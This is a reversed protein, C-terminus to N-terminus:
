RLKKSGSSGTGNSSSNPPPPPTQPSSLLSILPDVFPNIPTLFISPIAIQSFSCDPTLLPDTAGPAIPNVPQPGIPNSLTIGTLTYSVSQLPSLDQTGGVIRVTYTGAMLYLDLSSTQGNAAFVDGVLNNNSDYVYLRVGTNAQATSSASVELHFLETHGVKLQYADQLNAATLQDSGLSTITVPAIRFNVGLYYDGTTSGGVTNLASVSLYYTGNAIVPVQVAYSGNSDALVSVQVPNGNADFVSVQPRLGNGDQNWLIVTMTGGGAGAVQLQYFNATGASAINGYATYAFLANSGPPNAQLVAATALSNNGQFGSNPVATSTTPVSNAAVAQDSVISLKYAGMGFVDQTGSTVEVYYTSNAPLNNFRLQLTNGGIQTGTQTGLLNGNSDFVSFQPNLLSIGSSQVTITYNDPASHTQFAFYEAQNLTTIDANLSAAFGQAGIAQNAIQTATGITNDRTGQNYADLQPAGYLAQLAAIDGAALNNLIGQYRVDMVTGPTSNEPVGLAVGAEHLIVTNLDYLSTNGIGFQTNDNINVDGSITGAAPNFGASTALIDATTSSAFVRIDGFRPDGQPAGNTGIAAGSDGVLAINMNTNVAWTQFAKLIQAEWVQPSGLQQNLTQFLASTQDGVVTGDPVFSLTLHTPDQWAISPAPAPSIGSGGAPVLRDELQEVSLRCHSTM